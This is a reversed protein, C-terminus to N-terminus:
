KRIQPLPKNLVGPNITSDIGNSPTKLDGPKRKGCVENCGKNHTNLYPNKENGIRELVPSSPKKWLQAESSNTNLDARNLINETAVSPKVTQANAAPALAALSTMALISVIFKAKNSQQNSM